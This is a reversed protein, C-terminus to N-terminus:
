YWSQFYACANNSLEVFEYSVYDVETERSHSCTVLLTTQARTKQLGCFTCRHAEYIGATLLTATYGSKFIFYVLYGPVLYPMIRCRTTSDAVRDEPGAPNSGLPKM